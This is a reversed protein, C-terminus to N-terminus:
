LGLKRQAWLAGAANLMERWSNFKTKSQVFADLENEPVAEFAEQSSVDLGSAEFFEDATSFETNQDIFDPSLIETLSASKANGLEEANKSLEKLANSLDDFGKISM